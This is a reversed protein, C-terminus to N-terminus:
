RPEYAILAIASISDYTRQWRITAPALRICNKKGTEGILAVLRHEVAYHVDEEEIGPQFQGQRYDQRIQELGAVIQESEQQTIINCHALM